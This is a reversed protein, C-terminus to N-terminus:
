RSFLFKMSMLKQLVNSCETTKLAKRWRPPLLYELYYDSCSQVSQTSIVRCLSRTTAIAYFNKFTQAKKM